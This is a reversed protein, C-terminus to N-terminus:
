YNNKQCAQMELTMYGNSNMRLKTMYGKTICDNKGTRCAACREMAECGAVVESYNKRVLEESIDPFDVKVYQHLKTIDVSAMYEAARGDHVFKVARAAITYDRKVDWPLQKPKTQEEYALDKIADKIDSITPFKKCFSMCSRVATEMLDDQYKQFEGMWLVGKATM